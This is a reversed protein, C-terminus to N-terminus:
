RRPGILLLSRLSQGRTAGGFRAIQAFSEHSVPLYAYDEGAHHRCEPDHLYIFQSDCASLVVWHPAKERNIRWTSILALPLWGAGILAPIEAATPVADIQEVGTQALAREFERQVLAIVHRKQESRVGRAFLTDSRNLYLRVAHGRRWAALALGHPGCGAHGSTMFITTAERWIALEHSQQLATSADQAAMAMMLAAPGCTFDTSQAYYPVARRTVPHPYSLRKEMRLARAHDAYYDDCLAFPRFGCARYLAQAARNDERVELRLFARGARRACDEADALLHRAFGRGRQGDAIALSYLRALSLGRRFLTLAYGCLTDDHCLV